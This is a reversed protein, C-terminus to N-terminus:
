IVIDQALKAFKGSAAFAPTAEKSEKPCPREYNFAFAATVDAALEESTSSSFSDRPSSPSLLGQRGGGEKFSLLSQQQEGRLQQL